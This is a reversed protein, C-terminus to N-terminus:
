QSTPCHKNPALLTRNCKKLHFRLIKRLKPLTLETMNELYSRLQLVPQVARIVASVDKYAYGKSLGADIQSILAQYGLKDKQGPDGVVGQIKFDRHFISQEIGKLPVKITDEGKVPDTPKEKQMM